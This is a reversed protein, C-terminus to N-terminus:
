RLPGLPVQDWMKIRSLTQHAPAHRRAASREGWAVAAADACGHACARVRVRVVWCAGGRLVVRVRVVWCAGGRLVVRLRVM